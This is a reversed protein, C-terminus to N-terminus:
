KLLNAFWAGIRSGKNGNKTLFESGCYFSRTWECRLQDKSSSCLPSLAEAAEMAYDNALSFDMKLQGQAYLWLHMTLWFEMVLPSKFANAHESNLSGEIVQQMAVLSDQQVLLQKLLVEHRLTLLGLLLQLDSHAPYKLKSREFLATNEECVKALFSEDCCVGKAVPICFGMGQIVGYLVNSIAM